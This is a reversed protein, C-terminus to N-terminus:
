KQVGMIESLKEFNNVIWDAIINSDDKYIICSGIDDEYYWYLENQLIPTLQKIKSVSNEHLLCKEETDFIQGDDSQWVQKM